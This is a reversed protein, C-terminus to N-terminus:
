PTSDQVWLMKLTLANTSSGNSVLASAIPDGTFPNTDGGEIDYIRPVNIELPIVVVSSSSDDLFEINADATETTSASLAQVALAALEDGDVACNFAVRPSAVIATGQTPLNDGTGGNDAGIPVSNVSVTGVLVGRRCGTAWYLDIVMATTIGHGNSLTLTGTENDTRTSLTGAKGAPVAIDKIGGGDATRVFNKSISGGVGSASKAITLTASM